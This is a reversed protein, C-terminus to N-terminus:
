CEVMAFVRIKGAAEEKFGLKGLPLERDWTPFTEETWAFLYELLVDGKPIMMAVKEFSPFVESNM